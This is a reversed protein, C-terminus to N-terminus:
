PPLDRIKRQPEEAIIRSVLAWCMYHIIGFIDAAQLGDGPTNTNTYFINIYCIASTLDYRTFQNINHYPLFPLLFPLLATSPWRM